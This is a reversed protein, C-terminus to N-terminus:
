AAGGQREQVGNEIWTEGREGSGIWDEGLHIVAVGPRDTALETVLKIGEDIALQVLERMRAPQVQWFWKPDVPIMRGPYRLLGVGLLVARV